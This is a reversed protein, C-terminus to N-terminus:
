GVKTALGTVREQHGRATKHTEEGMGISKINQSCTHGCWHGSDSELCVEYGFLGNQTWSRAAQM